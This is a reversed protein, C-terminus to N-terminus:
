QMWRQRGIRYVAGVDTMDAVQEGCERGEGLPLPKGDHESYIGAGKRSGLALAESGVSGAVRRSEARVSRRVLEWCM